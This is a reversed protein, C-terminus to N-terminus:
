AAESTSNRQRSELWAEVDSWRYRVSRGLKVFPPTHPHGLMRRKAWTTAGTGTRRALENTDIIESLM